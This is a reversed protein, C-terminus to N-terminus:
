ALAGTPAGSTGPQHLAPGRSIKSCGEPHGQVPVVPPAARGAFATVVHNLVMYQRPQATTPLVRDAATLVILTPYRGCAPGM